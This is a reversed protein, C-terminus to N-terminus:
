ILGEVDEGPLSLAEAIQQATLGMSALRPIAARRTEIEIQAQQEAALRAVAEIRAQQEAALRAAAEIRAQQEAALRAVAEIRAQETAQQSIEEPTMLWNGREDYWRLWLGETGAYFGSWVGLGVQLAEFWFRPETLDVLQYRGDQREFVRLHNEYRDYVVYFPVQLIQEYVEWKLPPKGIERVLRGLDEDETGPSLLEVVLFPAVMEQWMVYSWRLDEQRRGSTVGLCIFWDPRKHWLKHRLDYYLNLDCATFVQEAPYTPVSLTDDLLRPQRLHFLDPLGPEEADESPLDYMTPLSESTPTQYKSQYM